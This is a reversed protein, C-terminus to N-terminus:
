LLTVAQEFSLRPSRAFLTAPDGHGLNVIFNVAHRGDPFFEQNVADANFGSMPGADLGLARAALILYAGQLASNRAATSEVLAPNAEFLPKADYAPFQQPLQDFFRRDHAVIVTAPAAVTKERNNSSLAPALREKAEPTRLVLYRAPQANFATPGWKLLDYLAAITADDIAQPLFRNYTRANRFLQDLAADNLTTPM